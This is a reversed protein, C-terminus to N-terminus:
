ALQDPLLFGTIVGQQIWTTLLYLLPASEAAPDAPPLWATSEGLTSGQKVALLWHYDLEALRHVRVGNAERQVLLHECDRVPMPRSAPQTTEAVTGCRMAEQHAEWLQFIAHRSALLRVSPHLEVRLSDHLEVPVAALRALDMRGDHDAAVLSEQILWELRAVDILHDDASGCVHDELFAVLGRGIHFLNGAPSPHARQYSWALQGFEQSGTQRKLLPFAAALAVVFNERVNSRYIGIRQAASTRAPPSSTTLIQAGLDPDARYLLERIFRHQLRAM